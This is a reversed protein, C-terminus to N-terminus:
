FRLKLSWYAVTLPNGSAPPAPPSALVPPALRVDVPNKIPLNYTSAHERIAIEIPEFDTVSLSNIYEDIVQSGDGNIPYIVVWLPESWDTNRERTSWTTISVILLIYLLLLIRLKRFM